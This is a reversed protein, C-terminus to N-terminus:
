QNWEKPFELAKKQKMKTLDIKESFEENQYKFLEKIILLIQKEKGDFVLCDNEPDYYDNAILVLNKKNKIKKLDLYVRTSHTNRKTFDFNSKNNYQVIIPEDIPEYPRKIGKFSNM